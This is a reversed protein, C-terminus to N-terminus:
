AVRRSQEQWTSPFDTCLMLRGRSTSPADQLGRADSMMGLRSWMDVPDRGHLEPSVICVDRGATLWSRIEAIDFWCSEFADLWIGGCLATFATVPELESVRAFVPMGRQVYTRADPISMDFCFFDTISRAACAAQVDDALGDAKMNLALTGRRGAAVYDDLFQEFPQEDGRPVDHSIVLRGLHDRIDTEVGYGAAWAALFSARTNRATRTQWWGRHAILHVDPPSNLLARNNAMADDREDRSVLNGIEESEPTQDTELPQNKLM